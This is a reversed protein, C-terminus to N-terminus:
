TNQIKKEKQWQKIRSRITNLDKRRIKQASKATGHIAIVRDGRNYVFVRIRGPRLEWVNNAVKKLYKPPLHFGLEEFLEIYRAVRACDQSQLGLIFEKVRSDVILRM